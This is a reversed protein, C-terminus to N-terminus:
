QGVVTTKGFEFLGVASLGLALGALIGLSSSAVFFWGFIAGIVIAGAPLWRAPLGSLKLVQVIGVTLPALVAAKELISQLMAIDTM